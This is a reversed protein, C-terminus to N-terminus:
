RIKKYVERVDEKYFSVIKKNYDKDLENTILPSLTKAFMALM